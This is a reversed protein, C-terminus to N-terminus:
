MPIHYFLPVAKHKNDMFKISGSVEYYFHSGDGNAVAEHVSTYRAYPGSGLKKNPTIVHCGGSLWKTYHDPIVDSSTSDVIVHHCGPVETLKKFFGDVEFTEAKVFGM